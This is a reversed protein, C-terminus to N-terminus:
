SLLAIDRGMGGERAREYVHAALAVDWLAIGHSAFLTVEDDGDRGPTLGAVVDGLEQVRQWNLVNREFAALLEGSEIRAQAKDDVFLREARSITRVDVETRTLSNAGAVNIHSGPAIWRGDFLPERATTITTVIDCGEVADRASSVPVVSLGLRESMTSAFQVRHEPTRSYVCVERLQRVAAIAALQHEAQTGSGFFGLRSADPRACYKTAIGSAAGTRLRGLQDAEILALLAGSGSDYLSVLFRVNERTATYAKFGWYGADPLAAGMLHLTGRPQRVRCRPENITRGEGQQRFVTEMVELAAAMDIVDSVDTESLILTVPIGKKQRPSESLIDAIVSRSSARLGIWAL